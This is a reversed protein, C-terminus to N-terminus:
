EEGRLFSTVGSRLQTFTEYAKIKEAEEVIDQPSYSQGEERLKEEAARYYGPNNRAYDLAIRRGERAGASTRLDDPLEKLPEEGTKWFLIHTDRMVEATAIGVIQRVRDPALDEAGTVRMEDEILQRVKGELEPARDDDKFDFDPLYRKAESMAQNSAKDVASMTNGNQLRTEIDLEIDSRDEDSLAMYRQYMNPAAAKWAKPGRLYLDPDSAAMGKIGNRTLASMEKLAAKEQASLTRLQANRQRRSYILDDWYKRTDPDASAFTEAPITRGELIASLGDKRLPEQQADTKKDNQQRLLDIRDEVALRQDVDEIDRAADLAKGYDGGAEDMLRDAVSVGEADRAKVELAQDLADRKDPAIDGRFEEDEMLLRAQAISVATGDDMLDVVRKSNRLSVGSRFAEDVAQLKAAEVDAGYAGLRRQTQIMEEIDTRSETLLTIDREPDEAIKQYAGMAETATASSLELQRTRTSNRMRTIYRPLAETKAAEWARKHAASTMGAEIDAFIDKARLEMRSEFGAPDGLSDNEIHRAEEDLRDHLEIQAKTMDAAIQNQRLKLGYEAVMDGTGQLAAGVPDDGSARPNGTVIRQNQPDAAIPTRKLPPPM